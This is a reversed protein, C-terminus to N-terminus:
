KVTKAKYVINIDYLEFNQSLQTNTAISFWIRKANKLSNNHIKFGKVIDTSTSDTLPSADQSGSDNLFYHPTSGDIDSYAVVNLKSGEGKYHFYVKSIKKNVGPSELDYAKTRINIQNTKQTYDYMKILSNSAQISHVRMLGCMLDGNDTTVFNTLAPRLSDGNVLGTESAKSRTWSMSPLNFMYFYTNDSVYNDATTIILQRKNPLWGIIPSLSVEGRTTAASADNTKGFKIFTDWESKDIIINGEKEFLNIIESGNFLYVGHLNVWAIGYDTKCVSGPNTVGKFKYSEELFEVSQSINIIDLRDNKYCLLRDAYEELCVIESGDLRSVELTNSKPFIDFSNVPSKLIRDEYNKGDYTVNAVYARRNAITSTTFRLENYVDASDYGLESEYSSIAPPDSFVYPKTMLVNGDFFCKKYSTENAAKFGKELHFEGLLMYNRLFNSTFQSDDTKEWYLKLGVIRKDYLFDDLNWKIQLTANVGNNEGVCNNIEHLDSEGGTKYIYSAWISYGGETPEWTGYGDGFDTNEFTIDVHIKKSVTPTSSSLAIHSNEPAILQQNTKVWMNVEAASARGQISNNISVDHEIKTKVYGLFNNEATNHLNRPEGDCWRLGGDIYYFNPKPQADPKITNTYGYTGPGWSNKISDWLAVGRNTKNYDDAARENYYKALYEVKENKAILLIKTNDPIGTGGHDLDVTYGADASTIVFTLNNTGATNSLIRAKAGVISATSSSRIYIESDKWANAPVTDATYSFALTFQARDPEGSSTSYNSVTGYQQEHHINANVKDSKFYFLGTGPHCEIYNPDAINSGDYTATNFKELSNIKGSDFTKVGESKSLENEKINQKDTNTNLGGSFNDIKYIQKPM